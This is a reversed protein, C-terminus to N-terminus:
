VMQGPMKKLIKLFEAPSVVIPTKPFHKGNGTILFTKEKSLAIEYFVIDDTDSFSENSSVRESAIGEDKIHKLLKDILEKPFKFKERSLVASYEDLIETNYLPTVEKKLLTELTLVVASDPRKSLLASVLVNTDFVAYITM